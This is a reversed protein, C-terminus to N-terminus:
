FRNGEKKLLFGVKFPGRFIYVYIICVIYTLFSVAGLTEQRLHKETVHATATLLAQTTRYGCFYGDATASLM